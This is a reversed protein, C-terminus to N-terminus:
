PAPIPGQTLGRSDVIAGPAEGTELMIEFVDKAIRGSIVNAGILDILEDLREASVPQRCDVQGVPQPQALQKLNARGASHEPM